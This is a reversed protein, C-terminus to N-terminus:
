FFITIKKLHLALKRLQTYFRSHQFIMVSKVLLAVGVIKLLNQAAEWHRATRLVVLLVGGISRMRRLTYTEMTTRISLVKGISLTSM